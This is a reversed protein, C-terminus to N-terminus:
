EILHPGKKQHLAIIKLRACIVVQNISWPFNKQIIQIIKELFEMQDM